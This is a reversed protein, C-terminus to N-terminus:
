VTGGRGFLTVSAPRPINALQTSETASDPAIVFAQSASGAFILLVPGASPNWNRTTAAVASDAPSIPTAKVSDVPPPPKARDCAAVGIGLLSLSVRRFHKM